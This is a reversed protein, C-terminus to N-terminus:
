RPTVGEIGRIVVVSGPIVGHVAAEGAALELVYNAKGSPSYSPCPDGPCPPVNAKVDVVRGDSELWIMDLPILTNKMWFPYIGSRPFLFLMGKGPALSERFMLGQARTPDDFALELAVVFGDPLTATRTVAAPETTTAAAPAAAPAGADGNQTCGALSLTLALTLLIRPM